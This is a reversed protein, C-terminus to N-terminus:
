WLYADLGPSDSYGSSALWLPRQAATKREAAGSESFFWQGALTRFAPLTDEGAFHLVFWGGLAAEMTDPSVAEARVFGRWLARQRMEAAVQGARLLTRLEKQAPSVWVCVSQAWLVGVLSLM